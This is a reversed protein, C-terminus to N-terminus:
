IKETCFFVGSDIFVDRAINEYLTSTYGDVDGMNDNYFQVIKAAFLVYTVDFAPNKSSVIDKIIPNNAFAMRVKEEMTYEDNSPIVSITVAVGGFGLEDPLMDELASAKDRGTVYLRIAKNKDDIVVNVDPDQEFLIEVKKYLTEWPPSLKAAPFNEFIANTNNEM